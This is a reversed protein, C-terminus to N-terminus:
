VGGLRLPKTKDFANGFNWLVPTVIRDREDYEIDTYAEYSLRCNWMSYRNVNQAATSDLTDFEFWIGQFVFANERVWNTYAYSNTVSISSKASRVSPYSNTDFLRNGWNQSSTGTAYNNNKALWIGAFKNNWAKNRYLLIMNKLRVGGTNNSGMQWEWSFGTVGRQWSFNANNASAPGAHGYIFNAGKGTNHNFYYCNSPDRSTYFKDINNGSCGNANPLNYTSGDWFEVTRVLNSLTGSKHAKVTPFDNAGFTGYPPDPYFRDETWDISDKCARPHQTRLQINAM